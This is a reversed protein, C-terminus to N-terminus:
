HVADRVENPLRTRAMRLEIVLPIPNVQTKTVSIVVFARRESLQRTQQIDRAFVNERSAIVMVIHRHQVSPECCHWRTWGIGDRFHLIGHAVSATVNCLLVMSRTDM